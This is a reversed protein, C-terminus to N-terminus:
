QRVPLPTISVRPLTKPTEFITIVVSEGISGDEAPPPDIRFQVQRLGDGADRVHLLERSSVQQAMGSDSSWEAAAIKALREAEEAGGVETVARVNQLRRQVTCLRELQDIGPFREVLLEAAPCRIEHEVDKLRIRIVTTAANRIRWDRGSRRGEREVAAAIAETECDLIRSTHVVEQLLSQLDEATLRGTVSKSQLTGGTLAIEGDARITVREAVGANEPEEFALEMVITQPDAPLALVAEADQAAAIVACTCLWVWAAMMRVATNSRRM